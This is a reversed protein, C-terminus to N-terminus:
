YHDCNDRNASSIREDAFKRVDEASLLPAHRGAMHSITKLAMMAEELKEALTDRQALLAARDHAAAALADDNTM